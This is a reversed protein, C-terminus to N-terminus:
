EDELLTQVDAPREFASRDVSDLVLEDIKPAVEMGMVRQTMQVPILIGEREGYELITTVEMEGQPSSQTGQTAIQMGTEVDFWNITTRTKLTQEAFEPDDPAKYVLKVRYCDRDDFMERGELTMEDYDEAKMLPASYDSQMQMAFLEVGDLLSTGGMMPNSMWGIEGDYCAVTTGAPGLSSNIQFSDPKIAKIDLDGKIGMGALEISGIMHFSSSGEVLDRAGTVEVHRAIVDRATPEAPEPASDPVPAPAPAAVPASSACAALLLAFPALSLNRRKLM